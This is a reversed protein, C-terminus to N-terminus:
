RMVGKVIAAQAAPLHEAMYRLLSAAQDSEARAAQYEDHAAGIMRYHAGVKARLEKVFKHM